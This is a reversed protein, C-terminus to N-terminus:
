KSKKDVSVQQIKKEVKSKITACQTDLESKQGQKAQVVKSQDECSKKASAYKAAAEIRAPGGAISDVTKQFGAAKNCEDAKKTKALALESTVDGLTNLCDKYQNSAFLTSKSGAGAKMAAKAGGSDTKLADKFAGQHDKVRAYAAKFAAPEEPEHVTMHVANKPYRPFVPRTGIVQLQRANGPVGHSSKKVVDSFYKLTEKKANLAEQRVFWRVGTSCPPQTLSGTYDWFGADQGQAGFVPKFLDSFELVSPFARNDLTTGGRQDPLGGDMLSKLFPSAEDRSEGFGVAVVAIDGAAPEGDMLEADKKHHFLQIELPLKVGDYTHESPTHIVMKYINYQVTLHNPYSQGLAFNGVQGDKNAIKTYLFRGDNVMKVPAEYAPYRFFFSDDDTPIAAVTTSLNVPSQAFAMNACSGDKWSKGEDDYDWSTGAHRAAALLSSSARLQRPGATAAVLCSFLSLLRLLQM